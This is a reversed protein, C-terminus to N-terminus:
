RDGAPKIAGEEKLLEFLQKAMAESDGTLMLGRRRSIGGQLLQLIREFAPLSSDLPSAKKPHPHPFVLGAVQVPDNELESSPIGLDAPALRTVEASRSDILRDLSTYPLKGEGKLAIVVPLPCRVKERAGRGIDRIVVIDKGDSELELSVADVICSWGLRGALLVAVQGNASDLSRAGTLVIDVSRRMVVGALLVAKRHPTASDDYYIRTAKDAGLALADKLYSEVREPGVSVVTIEASSDVAKLDLAKALATASNPDLRRPLGERFLVSNELGFDLALTPDTAEKM